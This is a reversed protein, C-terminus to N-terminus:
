RKTYMEARALLQLARNYHPIDIMRGAHKVAGDGRQLAQEFAHKVGQADAVAEPAPTYERNAIDVQRPHVCLIGGMGILRAHRVMHSFAPVDDVVTISGAIGIAARGQAQAAIAMMQAPVHLAAEVPEAGVAIAYDETGFALGSVQEISAIASANQVGLPSEILAIVHLPARGAAACSNLTAIAAGLQEVTEAKPFVVGEVRSAAAAELDRSCLEAPASNVRVFVRKGAEVLRRSVEALHARARDKENPAVADELDLIIADAESRIANEVFREKLTPVFLFSRIDRSNM